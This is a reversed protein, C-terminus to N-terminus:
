CVHMGPTQSCLTMLHFICIVQLKVKFHQGDVMIGNKKIANKQHNIDKILAEVNERYFFHSM